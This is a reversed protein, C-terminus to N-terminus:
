WSIAAGDSCNFLKRIDDESTSPVINKVSGDAMAVTLGGPDSCSQILRVAEDVSVDRPEAWAIDSEHLELLMATNSAGDAIERMKRPGEVRLVTDTDVVAVFATRNTGETDPCRPSTFARVTENTLSVNAPDDWAKNRQLGEYIRAEELFPLIEVRWSLLPESGAGTSQAAPLERNTMEYNLLAMSIQKASNQVMARQAAVRAQSIAPMLLMVLGGIVCVAMVLMVALIILVILVVNSKAGGSPAAPFKAPNAYPASM